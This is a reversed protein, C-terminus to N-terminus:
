DPDRQSLPPRFGHGLHEIFTKFAGINSACRNLPTQDLFSQHNKLVTLIKQHIFHLDAELKKLQQVFFVGRAEPKSQYFSEIKKLPKKAKLAEERLFSYINHQDNLVLAYDWIPVLANQDISQQELIQDILCGLYCANMWTLAQDTYARLAKLPGVIKRPPKGDLLLELYAKQIKYCKELLQHGYYCAKLFFVYESIKITSM